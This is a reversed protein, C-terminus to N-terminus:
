NQPFIQFQIIQIFKSIGGIQKHFDPTLKRAGNVRRLRKRVLEFMALNEIWKRLKCDGNLIESVQMSGLKTTM